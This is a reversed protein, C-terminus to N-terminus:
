FINQKKSSHSLIENIDANDCAEKWENEFELTLLTKYLDLFTKDNRAM